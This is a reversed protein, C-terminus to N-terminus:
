SLKQLLELYLKADKRLQARYDKAHPCHMAVLHWFDRSHNKYRIHALEHIIVYDILHHPAFVLILSFFLRNDYTCSGFKSYANTIKIHKFHLNMVSALEQTRPVIYAHLLGKFVNRQLPYPLTATEKWQGFFLIQHPHALIENHLDQDNKSIKALTKEIWEQHHAIFAQTRYLSFHIPVSVIIKQPTKITIRPNKIPKKFIQLSPKLM